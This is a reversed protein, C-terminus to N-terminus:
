RKESLWNSGLLYRTNRQKNPDAEKRILGNSINASITHCIIESFSRFFDDSENKLSIARVIEGLVLGEPHAKLVEMIAELYTKGQFHKKKRFRTCKGKCSAIKYQEPAEKTLDYHLKQKTIGFKDAIKQLSHGQSRLKLAIKKWNSPLTNLNDTRNQM